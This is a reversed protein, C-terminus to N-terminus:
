DEADLADAQQSLGRSMQSPVATSLTQASDARPKEEASGPAQKGMLSPWVRVLLRLAVALNLFPQYVNEKRPEGDYESPKEEDFFISYKDLDPAQMAFDTLLKRDIVREANEDQQNVDSIFM